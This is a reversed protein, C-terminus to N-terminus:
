IRAPAVLEIRCLLYVLEQQVCRERGPWQFLTHSIVQIEVMLKKLRLLMVCFSSVPMEGTVAGAHSDDSVQSDSYPVAVAVGIHAEVLLVGQLSDERTKLFALDM